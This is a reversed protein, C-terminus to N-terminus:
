KGVVAAFHGLLAPHGRVGAVRMAATTISAILGTAKAKVAFLDSRGISTLAILLGKRAVAILRPAPVKKEATPERLHKHPPQWEDDASTISEECPKM